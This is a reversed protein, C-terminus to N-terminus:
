LTIALILGTVTILVFLILWLHWLHVKAVHRWFVSKSQEAKAAKDFDLLAATPSEQQIQQVISKALEKDFRILGHCKIM